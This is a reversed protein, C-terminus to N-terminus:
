KERVKERLLSDQRSIQEQSVNKLYKTSNKRVISDLNITEEGTLVRALNESYLEWRTIVSELSDIKIANEIAQKKSRADPYGPITTRLPTFAVLCYVVMVLLVLSTVLTVIIGTKTFRVSKIKKHSSDELLTLRYMKNAEESKKAM